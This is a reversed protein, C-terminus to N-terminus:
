DVVPAAFYRLLVQSYNVKNNLKVRTGVRTNPVVNRIVHLESKSLSDRIFASVPIIARKLEGAVKYKVHVAGTFRGAMAGSPTFAVNLFYEEVDLYPDISQTVSTRLGKTVKVDVIPSNHGTGSELFGISECKRHGLVVNGFAVQHPFFDTAPRVYGSLIFVAPGKDTEVVCTWDGCGWKWRSNFEVSFERNGGPVLPGLKGHMVTCGCSTQMGLLAVKRDTPNRLDFGTRVIAGAEVTGFDRLQPTVTLPSRGLKRTPVTRVSIVPAPWNNVMSKEFKVPDLPYEFALLRHGKRETVLLHGQKDQILHIRSGSLLTGYAVRKAATTFGLRKLVGAAGAMGSRHPRAAAEIESYFIPFNTLVCVQYPAAVYDPLAFASGALARTGYCVCLGFMLALTALRNM